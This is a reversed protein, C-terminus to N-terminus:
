GGTSRAACRPAARRWAGPTRTASRAALRAGAGGVGSAAGAARSAGASGAARQSARAHELPVGGPLHRLRVRSRRLAERLELPVGGRAEITLYSICRTADLVYPAAFAQTPCADLCARCSGCHDPERADPALALDTLLAGLFLYSGLRPHILCTNKGIWGLGAYAAFVRESCPDRISTPACRSPGAPSRSSRRGSRACGSASCTTTTRAAPTARWARRAGRGCPAARGPRLRAGGHRPQPGRAALRASRGAGRRAPALYGMEGPMAARWGSACSSPRARPRPGRWAWWTSASASRRAGERSRGARGSAFGVPEADRM